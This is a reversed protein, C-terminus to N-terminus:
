ALVLGNYCALIKLISLKLPAESKFIWVLISIRHWPGKQQLQTAELFLFYKRDGGGM